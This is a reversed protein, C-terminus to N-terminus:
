EDFEHMHDLLYNAALEENKNCAFYVELVTARDFGMAELREIAQREEPTVTVAQPMASALQGLINGEGGEVPENILRLFDVQHEQILRMLHPNQKGLEQLMPQLIQPNAQVMARLAQFQQSNRLFDLSGAGAAGSGVNPLGQPFLDLPNANPGSSPVSAPQAAQPAAAPPNAPQASAPERTVPPAEAQEPIGSYLYEVAREPNNYAARLARVVTDRDWSGGGMDLIQQITGELNSGAVLNSAAQGYIDSEPVASGSSIPAPAAASAPAAPATVPTPTAGTSAPAQPAASVSTSTPTASAKVSPATSTTSGEGSSSKTKSLMIVIFSNEAVKNEELTTGDKLVKGQHILMQQAAPYVDAGQVTEINKKVESLTDSPNVEIEFHTGKLTKVFVKM